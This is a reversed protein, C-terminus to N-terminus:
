LKPIPILKGTVKPYPKHYEPHLKVGFGRNIEQQALAAWPTGPHNQIVTQYLAISREIYPKSEETLTEKRTGIDWEILTLNPPKAM